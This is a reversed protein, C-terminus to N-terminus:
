TNRVFLVSLTRIVEPPSTPILEVLGAAFSSTRPSEKM